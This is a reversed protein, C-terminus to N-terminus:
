APEEAHSAASASARSLRSPHFPRLAPPERGELLWGALYHATAPALLIGNRFHGVALFLGAPGAPGIVPLQDDVTSRLGVCVEELALEDIAPVVQWAHRLLDMVAGATPGLDFGREEMTAGVLLRGDARPVLYVDTTRVVHSLLRPGALRVLQGKVPRLGLPEVPLRLDRFAFAGAAIVVRPAVLAAREEGHRGLVVLRGDPAAEVSEAHWGRLLLGGRGEFAHALARALARPDVQHDSAVRLGAVVRHSLHPELERVREGTLLDRARAGQAELTAALHELEGRADADLAVWLTGEGGYGCSRGTERELAEVFAPYRALSDHAFTRLEPPESAGEFTASLMGGAAATAGAGAEGREVVVVRAARRALEWAVALGVVGGGVVVHDVDAREPLRRM